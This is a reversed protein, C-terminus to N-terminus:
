RVAAAFCANLCSDCRLRMRESCPATGAAQLSSRVVFRSCAWTLCLQRVTCSVLRVEAIADDSVGAILSQLQQAPSPRWQACAIFISRLLLIIESSIHGDSVTALARLAADFICPVVLPQLHAEAHGATAQSPAAAPNAPVGAASAIAGCVAVARTQTQADQWQM